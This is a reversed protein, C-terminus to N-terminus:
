SGTGRSSLLRVSTSRSKTLVTQTEELLTVASEAYGDAGYLEAFQRDLPAGGVMILTEPHKPRVTRIIEPMFSMTTSMMASLALINPKYEEVAREFDQATVQNGLDIVRYGFARYVGAIINKGLDHPDGEVVGIVVTAAEDFQSGTLESLKKLGQNATDICLIFEPLSTGNSMLNARLTNLGDLITRRVVQASHGSAVADSILADIYTPNSSAVATRITEMLKQSKADM